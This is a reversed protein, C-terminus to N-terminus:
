GHERLREALDLAAVEDAGSGEVSETPPGRRGGLKPGIAVVEWAKRAPSWSARGVRGSM